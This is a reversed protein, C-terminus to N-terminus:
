WYVKSRKVIKESNIGKLGSKIFKNDKVTNRLKTENIYGVVYLLRAIILEKDVSVLKDGDKVVYDQVIEEIPIKKEKSEYQELYGMLFERFLYIKYQKPQKKCVSLDSLDDAFVDDLTPQRKLRELRVDLECNNTKLIHEIQGKLMNLTNIAEMKVTTNNKVKLTFVPKLEYFNDDTIKNLLDLVKEFSERPTNYNQCPNPDITEIYDWIFLIVYWFGMIDIGRFVLSAILDINNLYKKKFIELCENQKPKYFERFFINKAKKLENFLAKKEKGKLQKLTLEDLKYKERFPILCKEKYYEEDISKRIKSNLLLGHTYRYAFINTYDCDPEMKIYDSNKVPKINVKKIIRVMNYLEAPKKVDDYESYYINDVNERYPIENIIIQKSKIPKM